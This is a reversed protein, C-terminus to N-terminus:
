VFGKPILNRARADRELSERFDPHAIGILATGIPVGAAVVSGFAIVLVLMAVLLGVKENGEIKKAVDPNFYHCHIDVVLSGRKRTKIAKRAGSAAPACSYMM